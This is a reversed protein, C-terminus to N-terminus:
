AGITVTLAPAQYEKGGVKVTIPDLTYIGNKMGQIEFQYISIMLKGYASLPVDKVFQVKLSSKGMKFSDTDVKQTDNHTIMLTGIIPTNASQPLYPSLEATVQVNEGYILVNDIDDAVSPIAVTCFLMTLLRFIVM